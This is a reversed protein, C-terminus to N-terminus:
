RSSIMRVVFGEWHKLRQKALQRHLERIKQSEAVLGECAQKAFETQLEVAKDLSRVGALKEFFSKAQDLSQRTYQHYASAITQYDVTDAEAAGVPVVASVETPSTEASLNGASTDPETITESAEILQDAQPNQRQPSKKRRRGVKKGERQASPNRPGAEATPGNEDGSLM